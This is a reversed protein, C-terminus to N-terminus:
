LNPCRTGGSSGMSESRCPAYVHAACRCTTAAEKGQHADHRTTDGRSGACCSLTSAAHASSFCRVSVIMTSTQLGRRGDGFVFRGIRPQRARELLSTQNCSLSGILSLRTGATLLEHRVLVQLQGRCPSSRSPGAATDSCSLPTHQGDACAPVNVITADAPLLRQVESFSMVVVSQSSRPASGLTRHM